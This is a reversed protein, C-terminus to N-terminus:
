FARRVSEVRCACFPCRHADMREKIQRGRRVGFGGVIKLQSGDNPGMIVNAEHGDFVHGDGYGVDVEDGHCSLWERLCPICLMEGCCRLPRATTCAKSGAIVCQFEESIRASSSLSYGREGNTNRDALQRNLKLLARAVRAEEDRLAAEAADNSSSISLLLLAEEDSALEVGRWKRSRRGAETLADVAHRPRGRKKLAFEDPLNGGLAAGGSDSHQAASLAKRMRSRRSRLTGAAPAESQPRGRKRKRVRRSTM